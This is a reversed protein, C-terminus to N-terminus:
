GSSWWPIGSIAKKELTAIVKIFRFNGWWCFIFSENDHVISFTKWSFDNETLDTLSVSLSLKRILGREASRAPSGNPGVPVGPRPAGATNRSLEDTILSLCNLQTAVAALTLAYSGNQVFSESKFLNRILPSVLSWRGKSGLETTIWCNAPRHPSSLLAFLVNHEKGLARPDTIQDRSWGHASM